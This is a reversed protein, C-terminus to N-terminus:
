RAVKRERDTLVRRRRSADGAARPHAKLQGRRRREHDELKRRAADFAERIAVYVDDTEPQREITIEEGPVTLRIRIGYLRGKRHHGHPSELWVECKQIEDSFRALRDARAQIKADVAESRPGDLFHIRAPM